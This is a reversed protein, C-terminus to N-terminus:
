PHAIKSLAMPSIAMTNPKLILTFLLTHCTDKAVVASFTAGKRMKEVVVHSSDTMKINKLM